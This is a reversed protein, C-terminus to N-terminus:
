GPYKADLSLRLRQTRAGESICGDGLYLGLLEAYDDPMFRIPKAARWCRPCTELPTQRRPVYTPRRWDRITGRPIGLCRAVECDNLGQEILTMAEARVEPPHM